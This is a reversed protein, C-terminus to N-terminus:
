ITFPSLVRRNALVVPYQYPIPRVFRLSSPTGDEVIQTAVLANGLLTWFLAAVAGAHIATSSSLLRLATGQELFSGTTILQLPLTLLYIVLFARLEIRGPTPNSSRFPQLSVPSALPPREATVVFSSGSSFWFASPALALINAFHQRCFKRLALAYPHGCKPNVGVPASSTDASAGILFAPANHQLQKKHTFLTSLNRILFPFCGRSLLPQVM